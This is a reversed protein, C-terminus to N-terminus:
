EAAPSSLVPDAAVDIGEGEDKLHLDFFATAAGRISAHATPMDLYADQCDDSSVSPVYGDCGDTALSLLMDYITTNLDDRDALYVDALDDDEVMEVQVEKSPEAGFADVASM